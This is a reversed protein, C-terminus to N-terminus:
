GEKQTPNPNHIWNKLPVVLYDLKNMSLTGLRPSEFIKDAM